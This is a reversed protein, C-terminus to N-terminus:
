GAVGPWLNIVFRLSLLVTSLATVIAARSNLIQSRNIAVVIRNLDQADLEENKTVRRLTHRSAYIWLIAALVASILALIDLLQGFTM